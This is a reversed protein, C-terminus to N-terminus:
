KRDAKIGIGEKYIIGLANMAKASGANICEQYISLARAEDKPKGIGTLYQRAEILNKNLLTDPMTVQAQIELYFSIAIISLIIKM